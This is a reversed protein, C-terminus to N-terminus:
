KKTVNNTLILGEWLKKLDFKSDGIQRFNFRTPTENIVIDQHKFLFFIIEIQIAFGKTESEFNELLDLANKRFHRFGNTKDRLM